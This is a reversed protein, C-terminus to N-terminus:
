LMHRLIIHSFKRGSSKLKRNTQNKLGSILRRDPIVLPKSSLREIRNFLAQIQIRIRNTLYSLVKNNNIIKYNARCRLFWDLRNMINLGSFMRKVPSGTENQASVKKSEKVTFKAKSNTSIPDDVCVVTQVQTFDPPKFKDQIIQNIGPNKSSPCILSMMM